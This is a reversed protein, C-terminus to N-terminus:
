RWDLRHHHPNYIAGFRDLSRVQGDFLPFEAEEPILAYVRWLPAHLSRGIYWGHDRLINLDDLSYDEIAIKIERGLALYAKLLKRWELPMRARIESVWNNYTTHKPSAPYIWGESSGTQYRAVIPRLSLTGRAIAIHCAIGDGNGPHRGIIIGNMLRKTIEFRQACRIHTSTLIATDM